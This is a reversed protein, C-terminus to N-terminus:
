GLCGCEYELSPLMGAFYHWREYDNGKL